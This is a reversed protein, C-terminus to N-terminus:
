LLRLPSDLASSNIGPIMCPWRFKGLMPLPVGLLLLVSPVSLWGAINGTGWCCQQGGEFLIGGVQTVLERTPAMALAVPGDGQQLPPQDKVHRMMPLVFGLTKGADVLACM